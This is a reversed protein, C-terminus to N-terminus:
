RVGPANVGFTISAHKESGYVGEIVWNSPLSLGICGPEGHEVFSIGDESFLTVQHSFMRVYGVKSLETIFSYDEQSFSYTCKPNLKTAM